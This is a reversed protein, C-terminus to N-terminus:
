ASTEEAAPAVARWAKGVAAPVEEVSWGDANLVRRAAWLGVSAARWDDQSELPRDLEFRLEVAPASPDRPMTVRLTAGPAAASRLAGLVQSLARGLEDPQAPVRVPEAPHEFALIVDRQRFSSGALSVVDAVLAVLDVPEREGSPRPAATFRLLSGVIEKCRLAETEAAGLLAAEATGARQAKVIQVIGLLGALPNNLEHALGASMDAVAALQSSEVLRAQAERLQRTREDVRAQLQRNFSEIEENKAAIESRSADLDQTMQNFTRALDAIEDSGETKVRLHLDGSGVAVAANRLGQVPATISRGLMTAAVAAAILSVLGVYWTPQLVRTIMADAEAAPAAVVVVLDRGPLQATAVVVSDDLRADAQASRLVPALRAPDVLQVDGAGLLVNGSPDVLLAARNDAVMSELEARMPALSLEVGLALADGSHSPIVLPIAAAVGEQPRFPVGHVVGEGADPLAARFHALREPTVVDHGQAEEATSAYVPPAVESGAGDVLVVISAEPLLRWASVLFGNRAEDPAVDLRYTDLYAGLVREQEDLAHGLLTALQAATTVQERSLADELEDRAVGSSAWALVGLPVVATLLVFLRLQSGLRM